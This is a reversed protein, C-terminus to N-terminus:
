ETKATPLTVIFTAGEGPKGQATITGDHREAIKKCVALGVGTGQYAERGHLRQFIGFIREAYEQKFGIGNDAVTIQCLQNDPLNHSNITIVPSVGQRHFKLANSILNQFLQRMQTQDAQVIPLQGVQIQGEVAEIHTELDLLINKIINSLDVQSFPQAKTTVRSYALLDEILTKMRDAANEMRDIYDLGRDDLTDAYRSKLRSGFTQIKRLPEQLDHSAAYAFDQLEQNSRELEKTYAKQAAEAQKRETIDIQMGIFGIIEKGLSVPVQISDLIRHQGKIVAEIEEREVKGSLARLHKAKYEAMKDPPLDLDEVTKGTLDGALDLSIANQVIYRGQTDCVWLDFPIQDIIARLRADNKRLATEAQKLETVDRQTGWWAVLNNDKIIGVANNMFYLPEGHQTYEHTERNNGRYGAKVATLTAQFNQQNSGRGGFEPMQHGTIETSSSYGYMQAFANNCEAIYSTQYILRVQEEPPLTIPIPQEFELRYIGETSQEVFNRYRAESAVLQEEQDKLKQNIEALAEENQQSSTLAQQLSKLALIFFLTILVINVSQDLWLQYPLDFQPPILNSEEAYALLLGSAISVVAVMVSARVGYMLGAFLILPVYSIFSGDRIGGFQWAMATILGWIVLLLTWGAIKFYGQRLALWLAIVTILVAAVWISARTGLLAGAFIYFVLVIITMLLVTNLLKAQRNKEKNSFTPPSFFSALQSYIKNIM